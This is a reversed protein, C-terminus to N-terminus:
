RGRRSPVPPIARAFSPRVLSPCLLPVGVGAGDDEHLV